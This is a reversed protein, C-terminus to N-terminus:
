ARLYPYYERLKGLLEGAPELGSYKELVQAAGSVIEPAPPRVGQIKDLTKAFWKLFFNGGSVTNPWEKIHIAYHATELAKLYEDLDKSTRPMRKAEEDKTM